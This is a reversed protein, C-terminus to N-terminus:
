VLFFVFFTFPTSFQFCILPFTLFRFCILLLFLLLVHGHAAWSFLKVCILAAQIREYHLCDYKTTSSNVFGPIIKLLACCCTLVVGKQMCIAATGNLGNLLVYFIKCFCIKSTQVEENFTCSVCHSYSLFFLATYIYIYNCYLPKTLIDNVQGAFSFFALSVHSVRFVFVSVQDLYKKWLPEEKTIEFTNPGHVSLRHKAEDPSLGLQLSTRCAETVEDVTMAAAQDMRLSAMM